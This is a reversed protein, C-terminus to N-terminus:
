SFVLNENPHLEDWFERVKREMAHQSWVFTMMTERTLHWDRHLDEVVDRYLNLALTSFKLQTRWNDAFAGGVYLLWLLLEPHDEWRSFDRPRQLIRLLQAACFAPVYSGNWITTSLKYTCLYTAFICAEYVPDVVRLKKWHSLLTVLRCEIWAQESDIEIKNIPFDNPLCRADLQTCVANVDELVALFKSSLLGTVSSFGVPVEYTKARTPDRTWEVRSLFEYSLSRATGVLISGLLDQWFLARNIGPCILINTGAGLQIAGQVGEVHVRVSESTAGDVRSEYGILLLMASLTGVRLVQDPDKMRVRLLNLVEGRHMLCEYNSKEGNTALALILSLAHFLAADALAGQFVTELGQFFSDDTIYAPGQAYQATRQSMLLRLREGNGPLCNFPDMKGRSPTKVLAQAKNRPKRPADKRDQPAGTVVIFNESKRITEKRNNKVSTRIAHGRIKRQTKKEKIERPHSITVFQFEDGNKM